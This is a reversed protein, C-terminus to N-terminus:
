NLTKPFSSEIQYIRFHIKKQWFCEEVPTTEVSYAKPRTLDTGQYFAVVDENRLLLPSALFGAAMMPAPSHFTAKTKSPGRWATLRLESSKYALQRIKGAMTPALSIEMWINAKGYEELGIPTGPAVVDERLLKLRPFSFDVLKLLLFRGERDVLECNSLLDRLLLSDELPPFRHDIPSLNFLIFDPARSSSYFQENLRMLKESYAAYSQFVPRPQYSLNNLIAYAPENGFVDTRASGIIAKLKPLAALPELSKESEAQQGFSNMPHALHRLNLVLQEYPRSIFYDWPGEDFFLSLMLFSILCCAMAIGRVWSRTRATECPLIELLLALIVAFGLFLELHLTDLRVFGQKWALFLSAVLWGLLILKRWRIAQPSKGFGTLSRLFILVTALALALLGCWGLMNSSQKGMAQDYGTSFKWGLAAFPLFHRLEQGAVIWGSLVGACFLAPMAFALLLQRRLALDVGIAGVCLIAILLLSIKALGGVVALVTFCVLWVLLRPGPEVLCLLGWSLLGISLLLDAGSHMNLALFSFVAICLSRWLATLRWAVLCLGTVIIFCLASGLAMQLAGVRPSGVPMIVFGLPGYPFALDHGFQLGHQRAYDLV